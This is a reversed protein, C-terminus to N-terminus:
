HSTQPSIGASQTSANDPWWLQEPIRSAVTSYYLSNTSTRRAESLVDLPRGPLPRSGISTLANPDINSLKKAARAFRRDFSVM